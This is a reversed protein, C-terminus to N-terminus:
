HVWAASMSEILCAICTSSLTDFVRFGNGDADHGGVYAYNDQVAIDLGTYPFLADGVIAPAAFKL